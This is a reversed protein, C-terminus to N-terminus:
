NQLWIQDPKQLNELYLYTPVRRLYTCEILIDFIVKEFYWFYRQHRQYCDTCSIEYTYDM